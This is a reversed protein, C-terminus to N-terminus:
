ENRFFQFQREFQFWIHNKKQFNHAINWLHIVQTNPFNTSYQRISNWNPVNHKTDVLLYIFSLILRSHMESQTFDKQTWEMNCTIEILHKIFLKIRRVQLVHAMCLTLLVVTYVLQNISKSMMWGNWIHLSHM